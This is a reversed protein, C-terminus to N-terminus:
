NKNQRKIQQDPSLPINHNLQNDLQLAYNYDNKIQEQRIADFENHDQGSSDSFENKQIKELRPPM